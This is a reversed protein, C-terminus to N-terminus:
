PTAAAAIAADLAASLPKIPIVRRMRVIIRVM